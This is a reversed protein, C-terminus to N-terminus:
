ENYRRSIHPPVSGRVLSTVADPHLWRSVSGVALRPPAHHISSHAPDCPGQHRQHAGGHQHECDGPRCRRPRLLPAVRRGAVAVAVAAAVGVGVAMVLAVAAGHDDVRCGVGRRRRGDDTVGAVAGVLVATGVTGAADAQGRPVAVAVAIGRALRAGAADAVGVVLVRRALELVAAVGVVAVLAVAVMPDPAGVRGM